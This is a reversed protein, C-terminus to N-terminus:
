PLIAVWRAPVWGDYDAPGTPPYAIHVWPPRREIIRVIQGLFAVRQSPREDPDPIRRLYVNGVMRGLVIAATTTAAITPSPTPTPTPTPTTTPSATPTPTATPTPSPTSTPTASPPLTPTATPATLYLVATPALAAMVRPAARYTLWGCSCLLAMFVLALVVLGTTPPRPPGAEHGLLLRDLPPALLEESGPDGRYDRVVALHNMHVAALAERMTQYIDAPPIGRGVLALYTYRGEELLIMQDSYKIEHLAEDGEGGQFSERAFSRIATLLAAMLDADELDAALSRQAMVLGTDNHILFVHGTQWPLAERLAATGEDVGSMRARLRQWAGGLSFARQVRSDVQRALTQLAEALARQITRGIVPTLAAIISERQEQVQKQLAAAVVPRIAEAFEDPNTRAREALAGILLPEILAVLHDADESQARVKDLETRLAELQKRDQTLLIERLAELESAFAVSGTTM